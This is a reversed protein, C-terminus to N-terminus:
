ATELGQEHDPIEKLYISAAYDIGVTTIKIHYHYTITYIYKKMISKLGESNKLDSKKKKKMKLFFNKEWKHISITCM